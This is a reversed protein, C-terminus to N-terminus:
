SFLYNEPRSLISEYVTLLVTPCISFLKSRPKFILFMLRNWANLYQLATRLLSLSSLSSLAKIKEREKKSRVAGWERFVQFLSFFMLVTMFPFMIWAFKPKSM